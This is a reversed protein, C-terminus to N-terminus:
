DDNRLSAAAAELDRSVALRDKETDQIDYVVFSMGGGDHRFVVTYTVPFRDLRRRTLSVVREKM